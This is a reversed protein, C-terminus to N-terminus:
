HLIRRAVLVMEPIAAEFRTGDDAQFHYRGSMSGYPTKLSTGSSYEFSQGPVLHPQEGVVGLGRVEQEQGNADRIVWHRSILQAGVKGTNTIVIHYAFVYVDSAVDSQEEVYAVEPVVEIRCNDDTM